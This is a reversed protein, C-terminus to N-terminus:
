GYGGFDMYHKDKIFGHIFVEGGLNYMICRAQWVILPARPSVVAADRGLWSFFLVTGLHTGSVFCINKIQFIMQSSM